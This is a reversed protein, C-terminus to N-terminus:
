GYFSQQNDDQQHAVVSSRPQHKLLNATSGQHSHKQASQEISTSLGIMIASRLLVVLLKLTTRYM